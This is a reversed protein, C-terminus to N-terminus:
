ESADTADLHGGGERLAVTETQQASGRWGCTECRAQYTATGLRDVSRSVRVVHRDIM